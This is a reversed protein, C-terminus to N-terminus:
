LHPQVPNPNTGSAVNNDGLEGVSDDGFCRVTRDVLTVCTMQGGVSVDTVAIPFNPGTGAYLLPSFSGDGFEGSVNQGWCKVAGSSLACVSGNAGISVTTVGGLPACPTANNSCVATATGHGGNNDATKIGLEGNTNSGWCMVTGNSAASCSTENGLGVPKPRTGAFFSYGAAVTPDLIPSGSNTGSQGYNNAGWCKINSDTFSTSVIGCAMDYGLSLNGLTPMTTDKILTAYDLYISAGTMENGLEGAADNGWCLIHNTSDLACAFFGGLAIDSVGTLPTSAATLVPSPTPHRPFPGTADHTGIGLVGMRNFGWCQVTNDNLLACTSFGASNATIKKINALPVTVPEPAYTSPMNVGLQGNMNDGWCKLTGDSLLACVHDWGTVIQTVGACATTGCYKTDATTTCDVAAPAAPCLGDTGCMAGAVFSGSTCTPARCQTATPYTCASRNSGDCMGGCVPDISCAARTGHPAGTVATCTGPTVDCAECNGACSTACCVGDACHGSMCEGGGSCSEGNNKSGSGAVAECKNNSSNCVLGDPCLGAPGCVLNGDGYDPSFSCAAVLTALIVFRM